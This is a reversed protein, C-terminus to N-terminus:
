KELVLKNLDTNIITQTTQNHFAPKGAQINRHHHMPWNVELLFHCSADDDNTPRPSSETVLKNGLVDFDARGYCNFLMLSQFLKSYIDGELIINGFIKNSIDAKRDDVVSALSFPIKYSCIKIRDKQIAM